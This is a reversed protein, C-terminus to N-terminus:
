VAIFLNNGHAATGADAPWLSIRQASTHESLCRGDGFFFFFFSNKVLVALAKAANCRQKNNRPVNKQVESIGNCCAILM